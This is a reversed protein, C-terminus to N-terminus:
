CSCAYSVKNKHAGASCSFQQVLVMSIISDENSLHAPTQSHDNRLGGYNVSIGFNVFFCFFVFYCFNCFFLCFLKFIVCFQQLDLLKRMIASGRHDQTISMQPGRHTRQPGNRYKAMGLTVASSTDILFSSLGAYIGCAEHM